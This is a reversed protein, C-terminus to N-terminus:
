VVKEDPDVAAQLQRLQVVIRDDQVDYMVQGRSCVGQVTSRDFTSTGHRRVFAELLALANAYKNQLKLYDAKLEGHVTEMRQRDNSMADAMQGSLARAVNVLRKAETRSPQRGPTPEPQPPPQTIDRETM